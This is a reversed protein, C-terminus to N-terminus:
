ASLSLSLSLSFSLSLPLSLSLSLEGMMSPSIWQNYRSELMCAISPTQLTGTLLHTFMLKLQVHDRAHVYIRM